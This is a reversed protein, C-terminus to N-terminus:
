SPALVAQVDRQPVDGVLEGHGLGTPLIFRLKGYSVKKDRAMVELVSEPNLDPVAVPLGLDTLLRRQRLVFSEDVRGLREALRAACDMGIAVAEGHLLQSYGTLTEFAHAFTHGYNLIARRGTTEQEDAIVVEAKLQCSRRIIARLTAHDMSLLRETSKELQAFLEPDLIAGYKVIEALGSCYEREPLTTLVETDILVGRPQWFAGVLNKGGPLNVGTKGGVSSDVQALLTTPIQILRLGRAFTAAVFGALDGIVGGGFALVVSSRDAHVELMTEWLTNATEVSKLTEGPPIVLVHVELESAALGTALRDLHLRELNEDTILVIHETQGQSFIFEAANQLCGTGIEIPYARAGLDVSLVERETPNSNTRSDKTPEGGQDSQPGPLPGAQGNSDPSVSPDNEASATM